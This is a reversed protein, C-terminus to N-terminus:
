QVPTLLYESRVNGLAAFVHERSGPIKTYLHEVLQRIDDRRTKGSLPCNSSVPHLGLRNAIAIISKKRLYALPRILALRGSFLDQRPRMTSINGACTLNLFFTEVIDDAHHGLAISTFGHKRAYAFLQHRRSRACQFCVAKASVKAQSASVPAPKEAALVQCSIDHHGLERCILDAVDSRSGDEPQMDLHVTQLDYHVPAKNRWWHMLWALVLSDVGGSVALLVRDGDALMRYDLMARGINRNEAATLLSKM